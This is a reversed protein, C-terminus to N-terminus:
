RSAARVTPPYQAFSADGRFGYLGSDRSSVVGARRLDNIRLGWAGAGDRFSGLIGGIILRQAPLCFSGLGPNSRRALERLSFPSRGEPRPTMGGARGKTSAPVADM